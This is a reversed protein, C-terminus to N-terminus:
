CPSTLHAVVGSCWPDYDAFQALLVLDDAVHQVGAPHNWLVALFQRMPINVGRQNGGSRLKQIGELVGDASQLATAHIVVM